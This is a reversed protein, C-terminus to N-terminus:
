FEFALQATLLDRRDAPSGASSVVDGAFAPDFEGRLYELSLTTSQWPSWSVDAGYQREPQGAFERSQEYRVAVELTDLLAWSAELNWALPRDGRDDGDADLDTAAFHRTAGLVEGALGFQGHSVVFFASWGAVRRGYENFTAGTAPDQAVVLGAGSDALDSLYSGGLEVGDLPTLVLSAGWDRLHDEEGAKEADGNFVFAALTAPGYSYGALAATERTEGLELTLPDSIFHSHFVGFPLYQRGVRGNWPGIALNIAAEDVELDTEGEEFLFSLDGSVQDILQIGFGLQATALTLDSAADSSGDAFELNKAAAEGELLGSLTIRETIQQALGAEKKEALTHYLEAPRAELAELRGELTAAGSGAAAPHDGHAFALAPLAFLAILLLVTPRKLM